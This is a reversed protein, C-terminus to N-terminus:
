AKPSVVKPSGNVSPNNQGAPIMGAIIGIIAVAWSPLHLEAVPVTVGGTAQGILALLISRIVRSWISDTSFLKTLFDTMGIRKLVQRLIARELWEPGSM